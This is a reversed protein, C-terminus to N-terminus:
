AVDVPTLVIVGVNGDILGTLKSRYEKYHASARHADIAAAGDYEEIIHYSVAGDSEARYLDYRGCGPEARSRAAMWRLLDALEQERGAVADFSAIVTRAAAM